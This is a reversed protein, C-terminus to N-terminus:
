FECCNGSEGDNGRGQNINIHLAMKWTGRNEIPVCRFRDQESAHNIQARLVDAICEASALTSASTLATAQLVITYNRSQRAKKSGRVASWPPAAAGDMGMEARTGMYHLVASAEDFLYNNHVQLGASDPDEQDRSALDGAHYQVPVSFRFQRPAEDSSSSRRVMDGASKVQRLSRATRILKAVATTWKFLVGPAYWIILAGDGVWWPFSEPVKACVIRSWSAMDGCTDKDLRAVLGMNQPAAPDASVGAAERAAWDHTELEEIVEWETTNDGGVLGM